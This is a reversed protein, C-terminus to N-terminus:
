SPNRALRFIARRLFASIAFSFCVARHRAFPPRNIDSTIDKGLGRALGLRELGFFALGCSSSVSSNKFSSKIIFDDLDSYFFAGCRAPSKIRRAKIAVSLSEMIEFAFKWPLAACDDHV